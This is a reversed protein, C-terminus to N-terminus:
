EFFQLSYYHFTKDDSMAVLVGKPFKRGFKVTSVELGDTETASYNVTRLYKNDDRSFIQVASAQQDSVVIYGSGEGHQVIAIGEIDDKFLDRGFVNLEKNGKSPDAYYKRIGYGEDSYYVFGLEDDVAVAEIEKKGTFNGLKRRLRCSMKGNEDYLAYQWIYTGDTPGSKRSLFAYLSDNTPNKYLAIGMPMNYEPTQSDGFVDFGGNDLEKMDPVSYVRLKRRGRETFAILDIKNLGFNVNMELDINNPRNINPIIKDELINGEMDFAYIAGNADKDTGFVISKAPNKVNIWIAPDDTDHNVKETIVEPKLPHDPSGAILCATTFGTALITKLLFTHKNISKDINLSM